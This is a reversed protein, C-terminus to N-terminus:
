SVLNARKFSNQGYSFTENKAFHKTIASMKKM